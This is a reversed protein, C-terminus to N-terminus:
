RAAVPEQQRRQCALHLGRQEAPTLESFAAADEAQRLCRQAPQRQALRTWVQYLYWSPRAEAPRERRALALEGAAQCYLGEAPLEGEPEPLECRQRALLYLGIGRHLHVGYADEQAEAIEMLRMHTRVLESLGEEGLEQGDAVFREYEARAEAFRQRRCLLEALRARLLPQEPHAAVYRALHACAAPEDGLELHAAALSLHNRDMSPDAALSQRYCVVAEGPLGRRM